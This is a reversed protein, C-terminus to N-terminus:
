NVSKAYLAKGQETETVKVYAAEFTLDSHEKQYAKALQDLEEDPSGAAPKAGDHGLTIFAKSLTKDQAKLSNIAAKRMSEDKIGEAAGLLAAREETTGPLHALLEDARKELKDQARSGESKDLRKRLDDNSQAMSIFAVGVSKRLELGDLTKYVVPDDDANRKEVKDAEAKVITKRDDASKALFVKAEAEDGLAKLAEYHAKEGDTLSGILNAHALQKQLDEVTVKDEAAKTTSDAMITKEKNTGVNSSANGGAIEEDSKSTFAIRHIHPNGDMSQSTGIVIEGGAMRVWPHVHGNVWSTEGSNLEGHESDLILLHSHGEDPSTLAASKDVNDELKKKKNKPNDPNGSEHKRKLIVAVAGEQAPSDVVSIENIKLSRMIRRKKNQAM